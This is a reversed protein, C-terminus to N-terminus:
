QWARPAGGEVLDSPGEADQHTPFPPFAGVPAEGSPGPEFEVGAAAPHQEADVIVGGVVQSIESPV